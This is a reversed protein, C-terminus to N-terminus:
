QLTHSTADDSTTEKSGEVYTVSVTHLTSCRLEQPRSLFIAKMVPVFPSAPCTLAQKQCLSAAEGFM